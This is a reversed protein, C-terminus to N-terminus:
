IVHNVKWINCQSFLNRLWGIIVGLVKKVMRAVTSLSFPLSKYQYHHNGCTSLAQHTHASVNRGGGSVNSPRRFLSCCCHFSSDGDWIVEQEAELAKPQLPCSRCRQRVVFCLSHFEWWSKFQPVPEIAGAKLLHSIERLITQHKKNDKSIPSRLFNRHSPAQLHLSFMQAVNDKTGLQRLGTLIMDQSM